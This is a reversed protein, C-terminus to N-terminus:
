RIHDGRTFNFSPLPQIRGRTDFHMPVSFTRNLRAKATMMDIRFTRESGKNRDGRKAIVVNRRKPRPLVVYSYHQEALDPGVLVPYGAYYFWPDKSTGGRRCQRCALDWRWARINEDHFLFDLGHPNAATAQKRSQQVFKLMPEYIRYPVSE